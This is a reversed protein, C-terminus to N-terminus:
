MATLADRFTAGYAGLYTGPRDNGGGKIALGFQQAHEAYVILYGGATGPAEDFVIWLWTIRDPHHASAFRARRAPVVLQAALTARTVGHWRNGVDGAGDLEARVRGALEEGTLRTATADDGGFSRRARRPGGRDRRRDGTM